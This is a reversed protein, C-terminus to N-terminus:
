RIFMSDGFSFFRYERDVAEQYAHLIIERTSFASVLMLLTSEPLHFNTILGDAGKFEYPPYIFIDTWGSSPVLPFGNKAVSELTRVSTTGVCIIRSGSAKAENLIAATEEGLEYYESHMKHEELKDVKVPRFTGIGVHLTITCIKVDKNRIAELLEPTFHLGATPAAASGTEKSYVTQYRERDELHEHIYPPLPMHGLDDLINEFIGNYHFEMIRLGDEEISLIEGSLIEGFTIIDKPRAKKGPKVMVEWRDASLRKLLLIEVVGERKTNKGFLRAPLVRTDNLLLVDGMNLHDIINYFRQHEMHGTKRDVVLLKSDDRKELPHQAIREQPLEYYFDSTKM